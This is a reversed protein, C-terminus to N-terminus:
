ARNLGNPPRLFLGDVLALVGVVSAAVMATEIPVGLLESAATTVAFALPIVALLLDYRGISASVRGLGFRGLLERIDREVM